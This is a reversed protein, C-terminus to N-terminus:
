LRPLNPAWAPVPHNGARVQPAVVRLFASCREFASDSDVVIAKISPRLVDRITRILLDGDAYLECPAGVSQQRKDMVKWLRTLYAIDRKLELKTRGIGATRLIFGFDDPLELKDLIDRMVRRQEEDEVKRSVGVRDMNPMMVMLRGAISLYSTLTPGKTGIGEKLVQVTIEQGRQLCNQMLPRDRRATKRGVKETKGGGPFYQPHLDSIHLFGRQAHGFDIFAAQIASEVNTVRAKYINGVSSAMTAREAYLEELHSDQVIAIRCEEGPVDNVVMLEDPKVIKKKPPM